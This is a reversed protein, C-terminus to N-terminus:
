SLAGPVRQYRVQRGDRRRTVVGARHLVGLHDSVTSTAIDLRRALELTTCPEGLEALIRARTRGLLRAVGTAEPRGPRQMAVPYSICPVAAEVALRPVTDFASPVLVLGPEDVVTHKDRSRDVLLASGTWHIRPHLAGLAADLGLGAIQDGRAGIEARLGREITPWTPALAVQWLRRLEDLLQRTLRGRDLLRAAAPLDRGSLALEDACDEDRRSAVLEFEDGVQRLGPVPVPALLPIFGEGGAPILERVLPAPVGKLAPALHAGVRGFTPHREGSRALRLLATLMGLPSVYFRVRTLATRSLEIRDM